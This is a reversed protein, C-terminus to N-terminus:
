DEERVVFLNGASPSISKANHSPSSKRAGDDRTSSLERSASAFMQDILASADSRLMMSNRVAPNAAALVSRARITQPPARPSVEPSYSPIPTAEQMASSPPALADALSPRRGTNVSPDASFSRAKVPKMGSSLAPNYPVHLRHAGWEAIGGTGTYGQASRIVPRMDANGGLANNMSYSDLNAGASNIALPEDDDSPFLEDDPIRHLVGQDDAEMDHDGDSADDYESETSGTGGESFEDVEWPCVDTKTKAEKRQKKKRDRMREEERREVDPQIQLESVSAKLQKLLMIMEGRVETQLYWSQAISQDASVPPLTVEIVWNRGHFSDNVCVITNTTLRILSLATAAPSSSKFVYLVNGAFIAFRRQWQKRRWLSPKSTEMNSHLNLWMALRSAPTIERVSVTPGSLSVMSTNASKGTSKSLVSPAKHSSQGFFSSERQMVGASLPLQVPGQQHQQHQQQKTSSSAQSHISESRNSHVSIAAASPSPHLQLREPRPTETVANGFLNPFQSSTLVETVMIRRRSETSTGSMVSAHSSSRPRQQEEELSASDAGAPSESVPSLRSSSNHRPHQADPLPPPPPLPLSEHTLPTAILSQASMFSKGGFSSTSIQRTHSPQLSISGAPQTKVSTPRTASVPTALDLPAAQLRSICATLRDLHNNLETYPTAGAGLGNSSTIIEGSLASIRSRMSRKDDAGGSNSSEQGASMVSMRQKRRSGKANAALAAASGLGTASAPSKVTGAGSRPSNYIQTRNPVNRRALIGMLAEELSTLAEAPPALVLPTDFARAQPQLQCRNSSSDTSHTEDARATRHLMAIAAERSSPCATPDTPQSLLFYSDDYSAQACPLHSLKAFETKDSPLGKKELLEQLQQQHHESVWNPVQNTLTNSASGSTQTPPKDPISIGTPPYLFTNRPTPMTSLSDQSELLRGAAAAAAASAAAGSPSEVMSGMSTGSSTSVPRSADKKKGSDAHKASPADLLETGDSDKMSTTRVMPQVASLAATAAPSSSVDM